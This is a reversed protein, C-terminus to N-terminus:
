LKVHRMGVFVTTLWHTVEDPLSLTKSLERSILFALKGQEAASLKSQGYATHEITIAEGRLAM